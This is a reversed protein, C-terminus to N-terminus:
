MTLISVNVESSITALLQCTTSLLSNTQKIPEKSFLQAIDRKETLGTTTDDRRGENVKM